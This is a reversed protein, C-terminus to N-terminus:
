RLMLPEDLFAEMTETVADPSELTPLHGADAVKVFRAHLMLESTFEQRRPPAISDFAGALVLAPVLTRRLTKQHDPRRQMARSQTLFMDAGLVRAMDEVVAMVDERGAGPALAAAPIEKLMAERLHGARAAVMRAERAAAAQPTEGLPDTSILVVRTVRDAARRIVDLAVTGGLGTGALAFRPPAAALVALSMDEVLAGLTVPVVMVPRSLSLSVIQHFFVRADCMLGPLLIVPESM